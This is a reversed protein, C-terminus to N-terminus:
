LITINANTRRADDLGGRWRGRAINEGLLWFYWLIVEFFSQSGSFNWRKIVYGITRCNSGKWLYISFYIGEENGRGQISNLAIHLTLFHVLHVPGCSSPAASSWDSATIGDVSWDSALLPGWARPPWPTCQSSTDTVYSQEFKLIVLSIQMMTWISGELPHKPPKEKGELKIYRM